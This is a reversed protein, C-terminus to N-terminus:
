ARISEEVGAERAIENTPHVPTATDGGEPGSELITTMNLGEEAHM